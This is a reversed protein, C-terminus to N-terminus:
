FINYFYYIYNCFNSNVTYSLIYNYFINYHTIAEYITKLLIKLNFVYTTTVILLKICM